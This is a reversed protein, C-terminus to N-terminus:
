PLYLPLATSFTWALTIGSALAVSSWSGFKRLTIHALFGFVLWFALLLFIAYGLLFLETFNLFTALVLSLVLCLKSLNAKWIGGQHVQYFVQIYFTIPICGIVLLIFIPIRSQTLFFTSVYQDLVAGLILIFFVVLGNFILLNFDRFTISKIAGKTFSFALIAYVMFHNILYNHSPFDLWKFTYINLILPTFAAAILNGIICYKFSINAAILRKIRINMLFTVFLCFLAAFLLLVWLGVKNTVVKLDNRTIQNIWDNIAKQTKASYLISFHDANKIVTIQRASGDDFSGYVLDEEPEKIGISKLIDIAKARLRSERAGNIILVNSPHNKGITDTYNSLGIAGIMQDNSLAARFILDSAMSHGIIVAKSIEEKELYYNILDNLQHVFLKTAGEDVMIDGSYPLPHRGHGLFDLTVVKYGTQSLSLAISRMLGASGAFGHALFILVDAKTGRPEFITVPTRNAAENTLIVGTESKVLSYISVIIAFFLVIVVTTKLYYKRLDGGVHFRKGFM